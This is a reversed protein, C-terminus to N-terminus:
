VTATVPEKSLATVLAAGKPILFRIARSLISLHLEEFRIVEGDVSVNTPEDFIMDVTHAKQHKLIKEFKPSMHTGKKYDGVLAVFRRRTM